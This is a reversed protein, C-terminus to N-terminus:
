IVKPSVPTNKSLNINKVWIFKIHCIKSHQKEKKKHLFELFVKKNDKDDKMNLMIEIIM